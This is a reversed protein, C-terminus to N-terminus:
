VLGLYDMNDQLPLSGRSGFIEALFFDDSDCEGGDRLLPFSVEDQNSRTLTECSSAEGFILSEHRSTGSWSM